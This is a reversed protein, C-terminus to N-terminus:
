EDDLEVPLVHFGIAIRATPEARPEDENRRRSRYDHLVDVVREVLEALEDRTLHLTMSGDVSAERWAVPMTRSKAQFRGLRAAYLRLTEAALFDAAKATDPDDEFRYAQFSYGSPRTRWWRERGKGRGESRGPADEILGHRALERLHYSVVGTNDGTRGALQTATAPGFEYLLEWLRVRSPHALAKLAGTDLPPATASHKEDDPNTM